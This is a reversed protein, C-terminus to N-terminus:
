AELEEMPQLSAESGVLGALLALLLELHLAPDMGFVEQEVM